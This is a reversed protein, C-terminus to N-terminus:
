FHQLLSVDQEVKNKDEEEDEEEFHSVAAPLKRKQPVCAVNKISLKPSQNCM